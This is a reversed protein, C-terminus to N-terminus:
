RNSRLVNSLNIKGTRTIKIFKVDAITTVKQTRDTEDPKRTVNAGGDQHAYTHTIDLRRLTANRNKTTAASWDTTLGALGRTCHFGVYSALNECAM